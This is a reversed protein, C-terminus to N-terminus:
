APQHKEDDPWESLDQPEGYYGVDPAHEERWSAERQVIALLRSGMASFLLMYVLMGELRSVIYWEFVAGAFFMVNFGMILDAIPKRSPKMMRRAHLVKTMHFISVFLLILVLVGVVIGYASFAILYSNENARQNLVGSGFIPNELADELLLTWSLERTNQSSGLREAAAIDMGLARALQFVGFVLGGLVPLFLIAKGIRSYLIFMLGLGTVLICTRSGTWMSYVTLMGCALMWVWRRKKQSDNLILWILSVNLPAMYLGTGQPNGLLGTFRNQAGLVLQKPDLVVQVGAALSWILGAVALVRVLRYFDDWDELIAPLIMLVPTMSVAAFVITQLGPGAGEHQFRLVGTMIQIALLLVGQVPMSNFRLKGAHVLMGLFAIAAMALYVEARLKQVSYLYTKNIDQFSRDIQVAMGAAFIM